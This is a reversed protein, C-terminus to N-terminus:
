RYVAGKQPETGKKYKILESVTVMQYGKAKLWPVIKETADATSDYISHMLIIKGDLDSMGSVYKFVKEGDRSKWDLTDVSWLIVPMGSMANIKSNTEGYSPRFVTPYAGCAAKIAANTADFQQKVEEDKLKTLVPHSWTHAGIECGMSYANKVHERNKDVRSGLYFFTAVGGNKKLCQLIRDESQGGPGDDYTLAVMPKEPDIYREVIKDKLAYGIESKSIGAYVIGQSKDLITGEDFFFTVGEDTVMYKTFNSEDASIYDQWNEKLEEKDYKKEFYDKFYQSCVTKYSDEFIQQPVMSIGYEGFFQYTYINSGTNVMDKDKETNESEYIALNIIGSETTYVSSKIVLAQELPRYRRDDKHKEAREAEESKKEESFATKIENIKEKRFAEVYSNECTDYDVVYSIPTGYEYDVQEDKQIKFLKPNELQADAYVRFEEEDQYVNTSLYSAVAIGCTMLLVVMFLALLIRRRRRIRYRNRYIRERGMIVVMGRSYGIICM